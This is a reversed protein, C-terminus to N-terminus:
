VLRLGRYDHWADELPHHLPERLHEPLAARAAPLSDFTRNRLWCYAWACAEDESRPAPRAPMQILLFLATRAAWRPPATDGSWASLIAGDPTTEPEGLKAIRATDALIMALRDPDAQGLLLWHGVLASSGSVVRAYFSRAQSAHPPSPHEVM